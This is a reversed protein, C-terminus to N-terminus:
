ALFNMLLFFFCFGFGPFFFFLHPSYFHVGERGGVPWGRLCGRCLPGGGGALRSQGLGLGQCLWDQQDFTWRGQISWSSPEPPSGTDSGFPVSSGWCPHARAQAAASGPRKDSGGGTRWPNPYPWDGMWWLHALPGPRVRFRWLMLVTRPELIQDSFQEVTLFFKIWFEAGARQMEIVAVPLLLWHFFVFSSARTRSCCLSNACTWRSVWASVM